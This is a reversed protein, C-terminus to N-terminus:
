DDARGRLSANHLLPIQAAAHESLEYPVRAVCGTNLRRHSPESPPVRVHRSVLQLSAVGMVRCEGRMGFAAGSRM